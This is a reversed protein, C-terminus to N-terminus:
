REFHIYQIVHQFGKLPTKVCSPRTSSQAQTCNTQTLTFVVTPTDRTHDMKNHSTFGAPGPIAGGGKHVISLWVTYSTGCTKKPWHEQFCSVALQAANSNSQFCVHTFAFQFIFCHKMKVDLAWGQNECLYTHFCRLDDQCMLFLFTTTTSLKRFSPLQSGLLM